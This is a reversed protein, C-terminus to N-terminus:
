SRLYFLQIRGECRHRMLRVGSPLTPQLPTLIPVGEIMTSAPVRNNFFICFPSDTKSCVWFKELINCAFDRFEVEVPKADPVTALTALTPKVTTTTTTTTSANRTSRHVIDQDNQIKSESPNKGVPSMLVDIASKDYYPLGDVEPGDREWIKFNRSLASSDSAPEYIRERITEKVQTMAPRLAGVIISSIMGGFLLVFCIAMTVKFRLGVRLKGSLEVTSQVSGQMQGRAVGREIDTPGKSFEQAGFLYSFPNLSMEFTVPRTM